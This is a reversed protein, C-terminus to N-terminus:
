AAAEKYLQKINLEIFLLKIYKDVTIFHEIRTAGKEYSFASKYFGTQKKTPSETISKLWNISIMLQYHIHPIDSLRLCFDSLDCFNRKSKNYKLELEQINELDSGCKGLATKDGCFDAIINKALDLKRKTLYFNAM